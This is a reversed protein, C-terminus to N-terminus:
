EIRHREEIIADVVGKLSRYSTNIHYINKYSNLIDM